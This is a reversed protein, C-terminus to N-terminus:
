LELYHLLKKYLFPVSWSRYGHKLVTQRPGGPRASNEELMESRRQLVNVPNFKTAGISPHYAKLLDLVVECGVIARGPSTERTKLKPM